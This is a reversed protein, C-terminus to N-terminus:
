IIILDNQVGLFDSTLSFLFQLDVLLFDVVNQFTPPTSLKNPPSIATPVASPLSGEKCLSGCLIILLSSCFRLKWFDAVTPTVVLKFTSLHHLQVSDCSHCCPRFIRQTALLIPVVLTSCQEWAYSFPHQSLATLNPAPNRSQKAMSESSSHSRTVATRPCTLLHSFHTSVRSWVILASGRLLLRQFKYKQFETMCRIYLLESMALTFAPNHCFDPVCSPHSITGRHPNVSSQTHSIAARPISFFAVM